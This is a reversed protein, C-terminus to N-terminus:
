MCIPGVSASVAGNGADTGVAGRVHETVALFDVLQAILLRRFLERSLLDHDCPREVGVGLRDLHVRNDRCASRARWAPGSRPCGWECDTLASCGLM